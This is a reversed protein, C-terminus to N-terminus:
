HNKEILNKLGVEKIHNSIKQAGNKNLHILDGFDNIDLEFESLDVLSIHSYISDYLQRYKNVQYSRHKLIEIRKPTNILIITKCENEVLYIIKNLYNIEIDSYNKLKTIKNENLNKVFKYVQKKNIEVYKGFFVPEHNLIKFCNKFFEVPLSLISYIISKSSINFLLNIENQEMMPYHIRYSSFIKSKSFIKDNEFVNHPSFSVLVTDIQDKHDRILKRLKIYTYLYSDGSAALNISNDILSDDISTEVNSDGMFVLSMNRDQLKFSSILFYNALYSGIVITIIILSFKRIKKLFFNM